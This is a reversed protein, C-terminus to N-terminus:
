SSTKLLPMLAVTAYNTTEDFNTERATKRAKLWTPSACNPLINWLRHLGSFFANPRIDTINRILTRVVSYQVKIGSWSTLWQNHICNLKACYMVKHTCHPSLTYNLLQLKDGAIFGVWATSNANQQWHLGKNLRYLLTDVICRCLCLHFLQNSLQHKLM